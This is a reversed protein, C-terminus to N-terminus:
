SSIIQPKNEKKAPIAKVTIYNQMIKLAEEGGIITDYLKNNVIVDM